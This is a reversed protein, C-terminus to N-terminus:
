KEKPKYDINNTIKENLFVLVEQKIKEFKERNDDNEFSFDLMRKYNGQEEILEFSCPYVIGFLLAYPLLFFDAKTKIVDFPITRHEIFCQMVGDTIASKQVNEPTCEHFSEFDSEHFGRFIDTKDADRIINCFLQETDSLNIPLELKNHYMVAKRIIDHNQDTIQHILGDDFLLKVGIEAHDLKEDDYAATRKIQDFRGIDHLMGILWALYIQEPTLRLNGAIWECNDAVHLTHKKKNSVMLNGSDFQATYNNFINLISQKNM